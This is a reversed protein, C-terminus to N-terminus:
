GAAMVAEMIHIGLASLAVVFGSLISYLFYGIILASCAKLWDLFGDVGFYRNYVLLLIMGTLFVAPYLHVAPEHIREGFLMWAPVLALMALNAHGVAYSNLVLHRYFGPFEHKFFTYGSLAVLPILVMHLFGLWATNMVLGTHELTVMFAHAFAEDPQQDDGSFQEAYFSPDPYEILLHGAAVLLMATIAVYLFPNLYRYPGGGELRSDVLDAPRSIGEIVTNRFTELFTQNENGGM